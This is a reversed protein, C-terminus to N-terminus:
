DSIASGERKRHNLAFSEATHVQVEFIQGSERDRFAANIGEYIANPDNWGIPQWKVFETRKLYEAKIKDADQAYRDPAAQHTFRLFDKIKGLAEEVTPTRHKTTQKWLIYEDVRQAIRDIERAREDTTAADDKRVKLRYDFGLLPAGTAKEVDRVISVVRGENRHSAEVANLIQTVISPDSAGLVADVGPSRPPTTDPFMTGGSSASGPTDQTATSAPAAEPTPSEGRGTSSGTVPDILGVTFGLSKGAAQAQTRTVPALDGEVKAMYFVYPVRIWENDVVAEGM